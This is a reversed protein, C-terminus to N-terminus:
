KKMEKQFDENLKVYDDNKADKALAISADSAVKAEDLNGMEKLIRAKYLLIWFAKPNEVAAKNVNDLAKALDNDYERYFQAAQWYPKKETLMAAEIQARVKDNINVTIPIAVSTKDWMIQLECSQGKVNAFQITFTEVEPKVKTTKVTFRAVDQDEKYGDVGWNTIGKNIIIEWNDKDPITYLVYTGTDVKKGAIEVPESFIIKTAANAGTRWPKGYPVLDGFIKRGKVSPRSYVLEINSTGFDQKITQTPSPAPMKVQATTTLAALVICCSLLLKYM